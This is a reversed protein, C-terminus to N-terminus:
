NDPPAFRYGQGWVTEIFHWEEWAKELKRRLRSMHTQVLKGGDWPQGGWVMDFIERPTFVHDLHESLQWLIDFEIPSLLLEEGDILVKRSKLDLLLPGYRLQDRESVALRIRAEVKACFLEAPTDKTIYDTGGALFGEVQRDPETVCSLFVVPAHTLRRIRRCVSFGDEGPIMVDLLICDYTENEVLKLADEGNGALHVMCGHRRLIDAWFTRDVPDDDVLLIRRLGDNSEQKGPAPVTQKEPVSAFTVTKGLRDMYANQVQNRLRRSVPISHGMKTMACNAGISQVCNLNVVYSRHTKIFEQRILLEGEIDALAATVERIVGNTLHFSVKKNIVEVFEIDAFSLRVVGERNKLVFGQDEQESLEKGAKDLLPFLTEADVPKLLYHYADVSYSEVAFEPSLSIFIIKVNEDKERLERATKMGSVGPMVVDLLVLDYEGGKVDCLFDISNHFYHCEFSVGRSSQYEAILESLHEIEGVDDDCVAIRMNGVERRVILASLVM